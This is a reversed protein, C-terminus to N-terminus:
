KPTVSIIHVTNKGINKVAYQRKESVLLTEGTKRPTVEKSGDAYTRELAGGQVFYSVQGLHSQMPSSEGPRFVSDSVRVKENEDLTKTTYQAATSNAMGQALSPNSGAMAFVIATVFLLATGATNAM